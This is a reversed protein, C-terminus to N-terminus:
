PEAARTARDRRRDLAAKIVHLYDERSDRRVVGHNARHLRRRLLVNSLIESKVGLEESRLIWDMFEGSEYRTSFGGVFGLVSRRVLLTGSSRFPLPAPDFRFLHHMESPLEPSVFQEVHGMVMGLSPDGDLAALQHELRDNPWVDDADLFAVLEGSTREIGRNRAASVGVHPQHLVTVPAGFSRAVAVTGDTSGDDVVVVERVGSPQRLVSEVAEALYREGNWCPIVVSVRSRWAFVGSSGM